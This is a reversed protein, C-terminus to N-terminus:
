RPETEFHWPDGEGRRYLYTIETDSDLFQYDYPESGDTYVETWYADILWPFAMTPGIWTDMMTAPGYREVRTAAYSVVEARQIPTQREVFDTLAQDIDAETPGGPAPESEPGPEPEPESGPEPEPEPSVWATSEEGPDEMASNAAGACGSVLATVMLAASLAAFLRGIPRTALTTGSLVDVRRPAGSRVAAGVEASLRRAYQTATFAAVAAARTGLAGVVAAGIGISQVLRQNSMYEVEQHPNDHTSVRERLV